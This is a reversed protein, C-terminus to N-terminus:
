RAEAKAPLSLSEKVYDRKGPPVALNMVLESLPEHRVRIGAPTKEHTVKVGLVEAKPTPRLKVVGPPVEQYAAADTEDCFYGDHWTAKQGDSVRYAWGATMLVDLSKFGRTGNSLDYFVWGADPFYVEIFGHGSDGELFKASVPEAPIGLRRLMACALRAMGTCNAQRAALITDSPGSAKSKFPVNDSIWDCVLEVADEAFVAKARIEKCIPDLKPNEPNVNDDKGLLSPFREAVAAPYPLKAATSLVGACSLEVVMKQTVKINAAQPSNWTLEYNRRPMGRDDATIEVKDPKVSYTFDSQLIVQENTAGWFSMLAPVAAVTKQGPTVPISYERVVNLKRVDPAKAPALTEASAEAAILLSGGLAVLIAVYPRM